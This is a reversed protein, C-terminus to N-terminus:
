NDNSEGDVRKYSGEVELSERKMGELVTERDPGTAIIRALSYQKGFDPLFTGNRPFNLASSRGRKPNDLFITNDTYKPNMNRTIVTNGDVMHVKTGWHVQNEPMWSEVPDVNGWPEDLTALIELETFSPYSEPKYSNLMGTFISTQRTKRPNIESFYIENDKGVMWDFGSFGRYGEKRMRNALRLSYERIKNKIGDSFNSPFLNGGYKVEDEIIQDGMGLYLVKDKGVLVQSSPSGKKDIWGTIIYPPKGPFEGVGDGNLRLTTDGGGLSMGSSMFVAPYNKMLERHFEEAEYLNSAIGGDAVPIRLDRALNYSKTKDEYKNVLRSSPGIIFLGRNRLFQNDFRNSYTNVLVPRGDSESEIRESLERVFRRRIELIEPSYRGEINSHSLIHNQFEQERFPYNIKPDTTDNLALELGNYGDMPYSTGNTTLVLDPRSYSETLAVEHAPDKAAVVVLYPDRLLDRGKGNRRRAVM